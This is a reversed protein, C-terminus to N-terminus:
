QLFRVNLGVMSAWDGVLEPLSSLICSAQRSLLIDHLFIYSLGSLLLPGNYSLNTSQQYTNPFKRRFM